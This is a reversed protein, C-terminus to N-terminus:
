CSSLDADLSAMLQWYAVKRLFNSVQKSESLIPLHKNEENSKGIKDLTIGTQFIKLHHKGTFAASM